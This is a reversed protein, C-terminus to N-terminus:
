EKIIKFAKSKSIHLQTELFLNFLISNASSSSLEKALSILNLTLSESKRLLLTPILPLAPLDPEM